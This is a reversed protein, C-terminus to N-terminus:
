STYREGHVYRILNIYQMKQHGFEDINTAKKKQFLDQVPLIHIM